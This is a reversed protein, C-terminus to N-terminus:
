EDTEIRLLDSLMMGTTKAGIDNMCYNRWKERNEPKAEIIVDVQMISMVSLLRVDLDSLTGEEVATTYEREMAAIYHKTKKRIKDDPIPIGMIKRVDDLDEAISKVKKPGTDESM